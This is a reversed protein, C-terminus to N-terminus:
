AFPKDIIKPPHEPHPPHPPHPPHEPKNKDKESMFYGGTLFNKLKPLIKEIFILCNLLINVPCSGWNINM